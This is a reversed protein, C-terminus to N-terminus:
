AHHRKSNLDHYYIDKSILTDINVIKEFEFRENGASLSKGEFKSVEFRV